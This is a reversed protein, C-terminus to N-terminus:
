EMVSPLGNIPVRIISTSIINTELFRQELQLRNYLLHISGLLSGLPYTFLLQIASEPHLDSLATVAADLLLSLNRTMQDTLTKM